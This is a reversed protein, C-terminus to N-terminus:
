VAVSPGGCFRPVLNALALYFWSEQLVESRAFVADVTKSIPALVCFLHRSLPKGGGMQRIVRIWRTSTTLASTEECEISPYCLLARGVGGGAFMASGDVAVGSM